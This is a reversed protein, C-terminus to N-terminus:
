PCLRAPWLLPPAGKRQGWGRKRGSHGGEAEARRGTGKRPDRLGPPASEQQLQKTKKTRGGLTPAPAPTLTSSPDLDPSYQFSSSKAGARGREGLEQVGPSGPASVGPEQQALAM